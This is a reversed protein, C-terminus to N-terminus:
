PNKRRPRDLYCEHPKPGWGCVIEAESLDSVLWYRGGEERTTPNLYQAPVLEIAGERECAVHFLYLNKGHHQRDRFHFARLVDGAYIPIGNKDYYTKRM